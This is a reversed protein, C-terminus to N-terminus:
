FAITLILEIVACSLTFQSTQVYGSGGEKPYSCPFKAGTDILVVGGGRGGGKGRLGQGFALLEQGPYESSPLSFRQKLEISTDGGNGETGKRNNVGGAGISM